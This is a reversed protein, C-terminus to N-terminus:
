SRDLTYGAKRGIVAPIPELGRAVRSVSILRTYFISPHISPNQKNIALHHWILKAYMIVIVYLSFMQQRWAVLHQTASIGRYCRSLALPSSCFLVARYKFALKPILIYLVVHDGNVMLAFTLVDKLFCFFFSIRILHMEHGRSLTNVISCLTALPRYNLKHQCTFPRSYSTRPCSLKGWM